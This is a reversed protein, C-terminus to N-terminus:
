TKASFMGPEIKDVDVLLHLLDLIKHAARAPKKIGDSRGDSAKVEEDLLYQCIFVLSAGSAGFRVCAVYFSSTPLRVLM